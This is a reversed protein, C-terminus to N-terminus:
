KSLSIYSVKPIEKKCIYLYIKRRKLNLLEIVKEPKQVMQKKSEPEENSHVDKNVELKRKRPNSSQQSSNLEQISDDTAASSSSSLKLCISNFVKEDFEFDEDDDDDDDDVYGLHLPLPPVQATTAAATAAMSIYDSLSNNDEDDKSLREPTIPLGFDKSSAAFNKAVSNHIAQSLPTGTSKKNFASKGNKKGLGGKVDKRILLRQEDDIGGDSKIERSNSLSYESSHSSSSSNNSAEARLFKLSQKRTRSNCLRSSNSGGSNKNPSSSDTNNSSGSNNMGPGSSDGRYGSHGSGNGKGDSNPKNHRHNVGDDNKKKSKKKKKKTNKKNDSDTTSTDDLEFSIPDADPGLYNTKKLLNNLEMDSMPTLDNPLFSSDEDQSGPSSSSSSSTTSAEFTSAYNGGSKGISNIGEQTSSL